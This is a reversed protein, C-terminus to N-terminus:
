AQDPYPCKGPFQGQAVAKELEMTETQEEEEARLSTHPVLRVAPLGKCFRLTYARTHATM